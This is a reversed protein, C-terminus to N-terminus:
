YLLYAPRTRVLVAAHEMIGMIVQPKACEAGCLFLNVTDALHVKLKESESGSVFLSAPYKPSHPAIGKYHFLAAHETFCCTLDYSHYQRSKQLGKSFIVAGKLSIRKFVDGCSSWGPNDLLILHVGKQKM